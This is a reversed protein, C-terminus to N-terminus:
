RHVVEAVVAVVARGTRASFSISNQSYSVDASTALRNGLASTLKEYFSGSANRIKNVISNIDLTFDYGDGVVADIGRPSNVSVNVSTIRSSSKIGARLRYNTTTSSTPSLLNITTSQAQALKQLKEIAPAYNQAAAKKYFDIASKEANCIYCLTKSYLM